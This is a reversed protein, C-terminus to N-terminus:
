KGRYFKISYDGSANNGALLLAECDFAAVDIRLDEKSCTFFPFQGSPVAANSDLKGTRFHLLDGLKKEPWNRSNATPDGFLDLFIARRLGELRRLSERRKRRM